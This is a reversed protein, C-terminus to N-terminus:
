MDSYPSVNLKIYNFKSSKSVAKTEGMQKKAMPFPITLMPFLYGLIEFNRIINEYGTELVRPIKESWLIQEVCMPIKMKPIVQFLVPPM